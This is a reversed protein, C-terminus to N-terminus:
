NLIVNVKHDFETLIVAFVMFDYKVVTFLYGFYVAGFKSFMYLNSIFM